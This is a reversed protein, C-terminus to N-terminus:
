HPALMYCDATVLGSKGLPHWKLYTMLLSACYNIYSLAVQTLHLRTSAKADIVSSYLSLDKWILRHKQEFWPDCICKCANISKVTTQTLILLSIDVVM